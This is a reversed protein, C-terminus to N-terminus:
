KFIELTTSGFHLINCLRTVATQEWLVWDLTWSLLQWTNWNVILAMAKSRCVATLHMIMQHLLSLFM